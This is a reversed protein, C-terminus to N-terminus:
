SFGICYNEYLDRAYRDRMAEARDEADGWRPDSIDFDNTPIDIEGSYTEGPEYDDDSPDEEDDDGGMYRMCTVSVRWKDVNSGVSPGSLIMQYGTQYPSKKGPPNIQKEFKTCTCKCNLHPKGPCESYDGKLAQCADCADSSPVWRWIDIKKHRAM